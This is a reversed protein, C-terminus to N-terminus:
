PCGPKAAPSGKDGKSGSWPKTEACWSAPKLGDLGSSKRSLSAGAPIVWGKSTDWVVKDM